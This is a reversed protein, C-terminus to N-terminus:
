RKQTTIIKEVLLFFFLQPMREKFKYILALCKELGVMHKVYELVLFHICIQLMYTRDYVLM